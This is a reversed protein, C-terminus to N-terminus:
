YVGLAALTDQLEQLNQLQESTLGDTGCSGGSPTCLSTTECPDLLLDYFAEAVGGLSNTARILKYRQNRIARTHSTPEFPPSGPADTTPFNPDFLEAYIWSRRPTMDGRLYPLLSVSDQAPYRIRALDTVTAFIDTTNVLAACEGPEIGPGVVILPVRVGGEFLTGKSRDPDFCGGSPGEAAYSATGNDGVVIIYTEPDVARIGAVTRGLETDLAEVMANMVEPATSGTQCHQVACTGPVPCLASPPFEPPSHAANFGVQLFWPARMAQARAIAEDATDATAYSTWCAQQLIGNGLLDYVKVWNYYGLAGLITCDPRPCGLGCEIAPAPLNFMAGAFYRFGSDLPHQLGDEPSALHWKGVASNDYHFLVEPLITELPVSLGVDAKNYDVIGGMGTRFGYRGTLITARTPSCLPNGWANRFLLGEAALADINPTCPPSIGAPSEGYVGLKEVGVDDIIILAINPRTRRIKPARVIVLAPKTETDSGGPGSVTLSVSYVGPLAYAHAPHQAISTGGDGFDWSWSTVPGGSSLDTFSVSLPRVGAVPAASFEAVPPPESVTVYAVKTEVDSGGPGSVTLSVTFVGAATYVYTPNQLISTTGNGFDWSWTTASGISLDSFAV